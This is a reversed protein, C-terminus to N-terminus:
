TRGLVKKGICSLLDTNPSLTWYLSIYNRSQAAIAAIPSALQTTVMAVQYKIKAFLQRVMSYVCTPNKIICNM